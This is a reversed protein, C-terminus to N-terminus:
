SRGPGEFGAEGAAAAHPLRMYGALHFEESRCFFIISLFEFLLACLFIQFPHLSKRFQHHYQSTPLSTSQIQKNNIREYTVVTLLSIHSTTINWEKYHLNLANSIIFFHNQMVYICTRIARPPDFHM